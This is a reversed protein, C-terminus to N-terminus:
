MALAAHCDRSPLPTEEPLSIAVDSREERHCVPYPDPVGGFQREQSLLFGSDTAFIAM